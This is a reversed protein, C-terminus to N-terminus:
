SKEQPKLNIVWKPYNKMAHTYGAYWALYEGVTYSIEFEYTHTIGDEIGQLTAKILAEM